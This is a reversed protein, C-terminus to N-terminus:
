IEDWEITTFAEVIAPDFRKGAMEIIKQLATAHDFHLSGYENTLEDYVEAVAIIRAMFPIEEGKLGKPYGNGDWSEHHSYVAEALDLTDDFLNLIRYGVIPHQRKIELEAESLNQGRLIKEDLVIKGIDHLYGAEKVRKVKTAAFGLMEAMKGSLISVRESHVKEKKNRGHLTKMLNNIIGDNINKRNLVKDKYMKNEANAMIETIAQTSDVKTDCGLSISCKIAAVNAQSLSARIRDIINMSDENTTNPLLVIFEDGGLRGIIDNERCSEKLIEAIKRILEDGAAHGFIDNTMKLGNIDAFILSLPLNEANDIEKLAKEFCRRNKLGTLVDHCNLYKIEEEDKIRETIDMFTVVAGVIRDDKYRPYSRYEVFFSTGDSKWFVEGYAYVGEGKGLSQSISCEEVPFQTGDIRSHHIQWHMNKGLLEEQSDYKLLKLCSANCFICNGELDIGYIAEATSDLIIQLQRKSDKLIENTKNLEDTRIEVINELNNILSSMKDAVKNFAEAIRGLEDKRVIKARPRLDGASLKEAADLLNNMPNLLKRTVFYNILVLLAVALVLLFVTQKINQSVEAVLVSTPLASIIIWDLGNQRYQEVGIFMKKNDITYIFSDQKTSIHTNYIQGLVDQDISSFATASAANTQSIGNRNGEWSSSIIRNSTKDLIAVYGSKQNVIEALYEGIRTILMHTGLVGQLENKENYVPYAASIALDDMVFHKYVPSFIPAHAKEAIQYWYRERPDFVGADLVRSGATLDENAKYYWSHGGTSANNRMIEITGAANRRAGYYEGDATGYSFSYIEKDYSQLVGVFFKERQQENSLDLIGNQILKYNLENIHEPKHLFTDIKWYVDKAMDQALKQTVNEASATWNSFVLYVICGMTISLTLFSAIGLIFKISLNTQRENEKM